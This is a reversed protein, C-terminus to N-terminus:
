TPPVARYQLSFRISLTNQQWSTEPNQIVFHLTAPNPPNGSVTTPFGSFLVSSTPTPSQPTKNVIKKATAENHTTELVKINSKLDLIEQELDRVHSPNSKSALLYYRTAFIISAFALVTFLTFLIGFQSVWRLSIQFTRAAFNDKFILVTI